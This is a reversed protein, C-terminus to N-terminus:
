KKKAKKDAKEEIKKNEEDMLIGVLDEIARWAAAKAKRAIEDDHDRIYKLVSDSVLVGYVENLEKGIDEATMNIFVQILGKGM